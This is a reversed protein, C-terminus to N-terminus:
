EFTVGLADEVTRVITAIAVDVTADGEFEIEFSMYSTYIAKGPAAYDGRIRDVMALTTYGSERTCELERIHLTGGNKM